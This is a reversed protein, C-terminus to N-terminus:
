IGDGGRGLYATSARGLYAASGRALRIAHTGQDPLAAECIIM